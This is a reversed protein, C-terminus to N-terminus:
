HKLCTYLSNLVKLIHIKWQSYSQGSSQCYQLENEYVSKELYKMLQIKITEKDLSNSPMNNINLKWSKIGKNNAM